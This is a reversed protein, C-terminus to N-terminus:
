LVYEEARYESEFCVSYRASFFSPTDRFTSSGLPFGRPRSLPDVRTSVFCRGGSRCRCWPWSQGGRGVVGVVAAGSALSLSRHRRRLFRLFLLRRQLPSSSACGRQSSRRRRRFALWLFLCLLALLLFTPPPIEFSKATLTLAREFWLSRCRLPSLSDGCTVEEVSLSGEDERQNVRRTCLTFIVSKESCPRTTNLYAAKSFFESSCMRRTVWETRIVASNPSNETETAVKKWFCFDRTM